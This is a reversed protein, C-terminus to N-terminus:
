AHFIERLLKALRLGGFLLQKEVIPENSKIYQRSINQGKFDYAGDLKSRSENMWGIIDLHKIKALEEKSYKATNAWEKSEFMVYEEVINSDWVRHLNSTSASFFVKVDNGGRDTSYGIHLPQHLDGMLHILVKLDFAIREKTFDNRHALEAIVTNLEGIINHTSDPNYSDGKNINIYHLPRLSDNAPDSKIEDMWVSAEEITIEELYFALSDKAAKSLQSFAIKAVLKHGVAGWASSHMPLYVVLVVLFLHRIPKM